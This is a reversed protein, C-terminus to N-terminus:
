QLEHRPDRGPRRGGKDLAEGWVTRAEVFALRDSAFQAAEYSHVVVPREACGPGPRARSIGSRLACRPPVGHKADLAFAFERKLSKFHFTLARGLTVIDRCQDSAAEASKGM